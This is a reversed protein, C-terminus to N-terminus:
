EAPPPVAAGATGAEGPEQPPTLGKAGRRSRALDAFQQCLRFFELWAEHVTEDTALDLGHTPYDMKM